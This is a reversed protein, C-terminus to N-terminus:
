HLHRATESCRSCKYEVDLGGPIETPRPAGPRGGMKKEYEADEAEGVAEAKEFLRRGRPCMGDTIHQHIISSAVKRCIGCDKIHRVAKELLAELCVDTHGITKLCRPCQHGIPDGHNPVDPALGYAMAM